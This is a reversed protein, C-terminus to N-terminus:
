ELLLVADGHFDRIQRIIALAAIQASGSLHDECILARRRDSRDRTSM